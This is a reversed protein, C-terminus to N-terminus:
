RNNREKFKERQEKQNEKYVAYQEDTLVSKMEKDRASRLKKFTRYKEMRSRTSNRLESVGEFFTRNIEEVKPKQEETLNLEEMYERYRAVVEEKEEQTMRSQGLAASYTAIAAFAIM